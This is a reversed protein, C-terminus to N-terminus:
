ADVPVREALLEIALSLHAAVLYQGNAMLIDDAAHLLQLCNAIESQTM